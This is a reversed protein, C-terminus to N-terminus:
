GRRRRSRRRADRQQTSIAAGSAPALIVGPVHAASHGRLRGAAPEVGPERSASRPTERPRRPSSISAPATSTSPARAGFHARRCPPSRTRTSAARPARPRRLRRCRGRRTPPRAREHDDVLRGPRTTWGAGPWRPTVRTSSSACRRRPRPLRARHVPEVPVRRAQHQDGLALRRLALELRASRRRSTTRSYRASAVPRRSDRVPVISAGSPRSARRRVRMDVRVSLGRSARVCKSTSRKGAAEREHARPELGPAGVLDPGVEGRDPVREGAVALVPRAAARGRAGTGACRAGRSRCRGRRALLESQSHASPAAAVSRRGRRRARAAAPETGAYPATRRSGRGDMRLGTPRSPRPGARALVRSARTGRVAAGAQLACRCFPLGM